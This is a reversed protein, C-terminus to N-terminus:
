RFEATPEDAFVIKPHSVLAMGYAIAVRQKKDSSLDDPYYYNSARDGRIGSRQADRRRPKQPQFIVTFNWGGDQCKAPCYSSSEGTITAFIYGQHRRAHTLQEPLRVVFNKDWRALRNPLLM